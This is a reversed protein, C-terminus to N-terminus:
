KTARAGGGIKPILMDIGWPLSPDRLLAKVEAVKERLQEATFGGGGIVGIGGANSVAAVLEPSSGVGMGALM